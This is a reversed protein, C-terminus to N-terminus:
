YLNIDVNDINEPLIRLNVEIHADTNKRLNMIANTISKLPYNEVNMVINKLNPFNLQKIYDSGGHTHKRENYSIIVVIGKSEGVFENYMHNLKLIRLSPFNNM